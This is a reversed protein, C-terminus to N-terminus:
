FSPVEEEEYVRIAIVGRRNNRKDTVSIQVFMLAIRVVFIVELSRRLLAEGIHKAETWRVKRVPVARRGEYRQM